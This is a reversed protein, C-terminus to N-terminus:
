ARQQTSLICVFLGVLWGFLFGMFLGQGQLRESNAPLLCLLLRSPLVLGARPPPSGLRGQGQKELRPSVFAVAYCLFRTNINM